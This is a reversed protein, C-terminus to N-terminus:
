VLQDSVVFCFRFSSPLHYVLPPPSIVPHICIYIYLSHIHIHPYVHSTPSTPIHPPKILHISSVCPTYMLHLHHLYILRLPYVHSTPSTPIHPPEILHISSVCPTYMLHLHHLYIHPNLSIPTYMLHLHHLYILRLPYVHSTPSTPIHPPEILHISSVCPTYMLHLHHLYIHPNLSIYQHSAPLTPIYIHPKIPPLCHQHSAPLTSIDRRRLTTLLSAHMVTSNVLRGVM